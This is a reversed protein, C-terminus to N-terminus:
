YVLNVQCDRVAFIKVLLNIIFYNAFEYRGYYLLVILKYREALAAMGKYITWRSTALNQPHKLAMPDINRNYQDDQFWLEEDTLENENSSPETGSEIIEANVQHKEFKENQEIDYGNYDNSPVETPGDTDDIGRRRRKGTIPRTTLDFPDALINLYNSANEPLFFEAKFVYGITVSELDLDVPIGIGSIIQTYSECKKILEKQYPHM